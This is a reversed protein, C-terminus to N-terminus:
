QTQPKKKPPPPEKQLTFIYEGIFNEHPWDIESIKINRSLVFVYELKWMEKRLDM